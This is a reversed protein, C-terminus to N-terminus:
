IKFIGIYFNNFRFLIFSIHSFFTIDKFFFFSGAIVIIPISGQLIGLNIATTHHAAIYFFMNFGGLAMGGLVFGIWGACFLEKAEQWRKRFLVLLFIALIFWRLHTLLFPSIHGVAFRGAVANGGWFITSLTLLAIPRSWLVSTGPMM